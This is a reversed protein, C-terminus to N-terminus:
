CFSQPQEPANAHCTGPGPCLAEKKCGWTRARGVWSPTKPGAKERDQARSEGDWLQSGQERGPPRDLDKATLTRSGVGNNALYM